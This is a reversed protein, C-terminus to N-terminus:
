FGVTSELLHIAEAPTTAMGLAIGMQMGCISSAAGLQMETLLKKGIQPKNRDPPHPNWDDRIIQKCAPTLTM